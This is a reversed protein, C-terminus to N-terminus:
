RETEKKDKKFLVLMFIFLASVMVFTGGTVFQQFSVDGTKPADWGHSNTVDLPVLANTSDTDVEDALMNKADGDVTASATLLNHALAAQPINSLSLDMGGDFNFRPDNQILGLTDGTYIDCLRDADEASAIIIKIDKELLMYTDATEIETMVYVDDELGKIVLQGPKGNWTVPHMATAAAETDARGTVYWIGEDENLEAVVYYGDTTNRLQFLVHDFLSQDTKGDSFTKNLDLGYCFVHADDVLTDYYTDSTRRWTLVVENCNGADGYVLSEDSNVTAAYTVRVTYNSYGAYLSGNGNAANIEALGAPEMTIRMTHTGDDNTEYAVAFKGDEVNWTTVLDTCAADTYWEMVVPTSSDYSLGRSLLDRFSYTVISTANSTITPLTSIIQYQLTDGASATANHSFGDTIANTGNNKGTDAQSERVTKELTVIGTENKPYVTVDYLWSHGGDTIHTDNGNVDNGGGNVNTMPLSVFFPNVTNTVTEPVKTEVLLYLGVPLGTAVSKGYADTLAMTSGGGAKVYAELANKVTTANANLSAALAKNLVDSQYYWCTSDLANADAFSDKGGELGLAKLLDAALTKDFKYLVEVHGAQSFQYFDAVKLYTFEVGAIAYGYSTEGNGLVSESDTDGVRNAGGLIENVNEDYQGTSVYSDAGWVGDKSANTFDYKYITLSCLQDAHITADDIEAAFAPAAVTGMLCLILLLSLIRTVHKM